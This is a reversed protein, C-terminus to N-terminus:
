RSVEAASMQATVLARGFETLLDADKFAPTREDLVANGRFLLTFMTRLTSLMTTTPQPFPAGSDHNDVAFVSVRQAVDGDGWAFRLSNWTILLNDDVVSLLQGRVGHGLDVPRGESLRAGAMDYIVRGPYVDFSFPRTTVINDVVVTRPRSQKDFRPDGTMATMRQRLLVANEGYFRDMGPYRLQGTTQWGVPAILPRGSVLASPATHSVVTASAGAPLPILALAVAAAVVLPVGSWVENAALPEVKREFLRKPQGRRAAFYMFVLVVCIAVLVPVEQYVLVPADEFAVTIVILVGFGVVWALLSGIVGRRVTSRVAIGTAAAAIIM